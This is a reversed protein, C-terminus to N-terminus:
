AEQHKRGRKQLMIRFNNQCVWHRADTCFELAENSAAYRRSLVSICTALQQLFNTGSGNESWTSMCLRLKLQNIKDESFNVESSKESINRSIVENLWKCPSVDRQERPETSMLDFPQTETYM